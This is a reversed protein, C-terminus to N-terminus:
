FNQFGWKMSIPNQNSTNEVGRLIHTEPARALYMEIRSKPPSYGRLAGGGGGSTFACGM